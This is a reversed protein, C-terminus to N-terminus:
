GVNPFSGIQQIFMALLAQNLVNLEALRTNLSRNLHDIDDKASQIQQAVQDMMENLIPVTYYKANIKVNVPAPM